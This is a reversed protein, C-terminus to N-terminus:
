RQCGKLLRRACPTQTDVTVTGGGNVPTTLRQCGNDPTGAVQRPTVSRSRDGVYDDASVLAQRRHVTGGEEEGPQAEAQGQGGPGM